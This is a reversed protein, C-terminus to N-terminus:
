YPASSEVFTNTRKRREEEEQERIRKRLEAEAERLARQADAGLLRLGPNNLYIFQVEALANKLDTLSSDSNRAELILKMALASIANSYQKKLAQMELGADRAEQLDHVGHFFGGVGLAGLGYKWFVSEAGLSEFGLGISGAIEVFGMSSSAIALGHQAQTGIYFEWMLSDITVAYDTASSPSAGDSDVFRLPNNLAYTYMDWSQPNSIMTAFKRRASRDDIQQFDIASVPDPSMFRGLASSDFRAGFNDLGSEPDREKGTFKHSTGTDGAIQEGFPLYDMNDYISQDMATLLRTSGLHDLHAFYTTSNRYEAVLRGTLYIYDANSVNNGGIEDVVNGDLGYIYHTDVGATTKKVRHGDADYIYTATNGGDVQSVRNEADYTYSHSGDYTMNGAADYQYPSGLLRNNADAAQHFTNCTGATVTQDTRNGWADITWSLGRCAQGTNSDSMTAIRNLSDYTYSRVFSQAGTANWNTINGNNSSGANYGIWFDLVNGTPTSDSCIQLTVNSNNVDLLCPQLRNNYVNAVTLGNGLAAKRLAGHPFYGLSSDVSLLTGPHQSDSLSSTIQNPRGAGDYQYYFTIGYGGNSVSTVDGMLDYDYTVAFSPIPGSCNLSTCQEYIKPRGMPDYSFLSASTGSTSQTTKRGIPNSLTWGWPATQDYYYNAQPTSGDSYSKQTLRNLADYSYSTVVTATGTQNPAPAVKTQLNSNNDYAYSVAGSEPNTASTLRSLADYSFSRPRWTAPAAACSTFATTDMNKQVVCTLNSLGDYAYLTVAPNSLSFTPVPDSGGTLSAGSVSLTFSPNSFTGPQSTSSGAALSYNTAAGNSKATLTLTSGSASATVPSCPLTGLQSALSTSLSAPTSGQQYSASAQCGNVTIWVTGTDFTTTTGSGGTLTAGSPTAGFSASSFSHNFTVSTTLSYNTASGTAKATLTIVSGNVSAAVPSASDANFNSALASAISASTSGQGYTTSKAFSNVTITVSGSDYTFVVCSRACRSCGPPCYSSVKESGGITVTGSGSTGSGTVVSQETGSITGSGSGPTGGVMTAGPEDVEILRGLADSLSRRQNGAQDTVTTSAGSYTTAVNNASATGDPPILKTVRGLADYNYTTIGDTPATSSRHPNSQTYVRGLNDYTTDVSTAGQPDSVLTSQILRGLGDLTTASIISPSPTATVTKTVVQPNATGGYNTQQSGGDPLTVNTVRQLGDYTYVTGARGGNLDNQDQLSYVTGDCANYTTVSKDTVAAPYTTTTAYAYTSGPVCSGTGSAWKDTYDFLTSNGRGDTTQILEGLTNYYNTKTTVFSGPSVMQSLSTLNGRVTNGIGYNTDDHGTAGVVSNGASGSTTSLTTSDYAYNTQALLPGSAAGGAGYVKVTLPRDTINLSTYPTSTQYTATTERALNGSFDYEQKSTVNSSGATNNNNQYAWLVKSSMGNDLITTQQAVRNCCNDLVIDSERLPTGSAAGSYYKASWPTTGNPGSAVPSFAYVSQNQIGGADPPATVTTASPSSPPSQPNYTINYTFNWTAGGQSLSALRRDPSDLPTQPINIYSFSVQGGTTLTMGIIQGYNGATTGQDYTFQYSRGDPLTISSVTSISGNAETGGFNTHIPISEWQITSGAWQQSGVNNPPMSGPTYPRGLEDTAALFNGNTDKGDGMLNGSKDWVNWTPPGNTNSLTVYMFYGSGDLAYGSATVPTGPNNTCNLWTNDITVDMLHSTGTAETFTFNSWAEQTYWAGGNAGGAPCQVYNGNTQVYPPFPTSGYQFPSYVERWGSSCQIVSYWYYCNSSDYILKSTLKLGNRQVFTKLPFELHVNGNKLNVVGMPFPMTPSGPPTGLQLLYDQQAKSTPVFCLSIFSLLLCFLARALRM